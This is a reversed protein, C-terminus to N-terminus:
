LFIGVFCIHHDLSTPCRYNQNLNTGFWKILMIISTIARYHYFIFFFLFIWFKPISRRSLYAYYVQGDPEVIKCHPCEFKAHDGQGTPSGPRKPNITRNKKKKERREKQTFFILDFCFLDITKIKNEQHLSYSGFQLFIKSLCLIPTIQEM